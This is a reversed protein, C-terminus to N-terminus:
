GEGQRADVPAVGHQAAAIAAGGEQTALLQAFMTDPQAFQPSAALLEYTRGDASFHILVRVANVQTAFLIQGGVQEVSFQGGASALIGQQVSVNRSRLTPKLGAVQLTGITLGTQHIEYLSLSDVLAAKALPAPIGFTPDLHLVYDGVMTPVAPLPTVPGKTSLNVAVGCGGTILLAAAAAAATGRRSRRLRPRGWLNPVDDAYPARLSARSAFAVVRSAFPAGTTFRRTVSRGLEEAREADSERLDRRLDGWLGRTVLWALELHDDDPVTVELFELPTLTPHGRNFDIARDRLEAYAVAIRARPGLKQAFRRRRLTRAMKLLGPVALWIFLALLVPPLIRELWYQVLAYLLKISSQQFPIYLQAALEGNPLIQTQKKVHQDLSSVARPPHGLIPVWGYGSFYAELWMAGDAPRLSYLGGPAATSQYYGYGIRAPVGAWRAMLVEGATIEYPSAPSGALIEAVRDPTVDVPNGPGSAVVHAFYQTRVYQLREYPSLGPPASDILAAVTPPEPPVALFTTLEAGPPAATDLQAADPPVLGIVTYSTGSNPRGATQLAGTRPDFLLGHPAHQVSITGAVDPVQRAEGLDRLTIVVQLTSTGAPVNQPAPAGHAPRAVEFAPLTGGDHVTVFRRPDYPPTLWANQGYVDLVGLRLPVPEPMQATFLVADSTTAPPTEPKKPPIITSQPQNPYLFGFQSLGAMAAVIVALSLGARALRRIEFQTGTTGGRALEAGYGVALSGVGLLVAGGVSVLTASTPQLLIGAIAVPAPVLFGLRSRNFVVAATASTVGVAATLVVLVIRWGPDFPVPPQNLGGARIAQTVLTLPNVGGATDGAVLAVGAAVSVPVALLQLLTPSKVRYSLAAMGAGIFAGLLGVLRGSTGVFVGGLVWGVGATALLAALCASLPNLQPVDDATPAGDGDEPNILAPPPGAALDAAEGLRVDDLGADLGADDLGPDFTITM